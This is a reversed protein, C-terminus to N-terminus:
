PALSSPLRLPQPCASIVVVHSQTPHLETPQLSPSLPVTESALEKLKTSIRLAPVATAPKGDATGDDLLLARRVAALALVLMCLSAITLMVVVLVFPAVPQRRESWLLALPLEVHGPEGHHHASLEEAHRVTANKSWDPLSATCTAIFALTHLSRGIMKTPGHGQTKPLDLTLSSLNSSVSRFRGKRARSATSFRARVLWAPKRSAPRYSLILSPPTDLARRESAAQNRVRVPRRSRPSQWLRDRGALRGDGVSVSTCFRFPPQNPPPPASPPCGVFDWDRLKGFQTPFIRTGVENGLRWATDNLLV